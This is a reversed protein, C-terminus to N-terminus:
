TTVGAKLSYLGEGSSPLSSVSHKHPVGLVDNVVSCSYTSCPSFYPSPLLAQFLSLDSPSHSKSTTAQVRVAPIFCHPHPVLTEVISGM